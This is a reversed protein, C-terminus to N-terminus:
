VDYNTSYCDLVISSLGSWRWPRLVFPSTLHLLFFPPSKLFSSGFSWPLSLFIMAWFRVSVLLDPFIVWDSCSTAASFNVMFELRIFITSFAGYCLFKPHKLLPTFIPLNSSGEQSEYQLILFCEFPQQLLLPFIRYRQASNAFGSAYFIMPMVSKAVM